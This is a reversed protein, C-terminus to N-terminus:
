GSPANVAARHARGALLGAAYWITMYEPNLNRLDLQRDVLGYLLTFALLAAPLPDGDRAARAAHGALVALMGLLLALGVVGTNLLASLVISHAFLVEFGVTTDFSMPAASGTGFWPADRVQELAQRWIELRLSFGRELIGDIGITSLVGVTGVVILAVAARRGERGQMLLGLGLTVAAAMMPGRSKSLVLALVLVVGAAALLTRGAAGTTAPWLRFALVILAAGYLIAVVVANESAGFGTLREYGGPATFAAVIAALAAVAGAAVFAREALRRAEPVTLLLLGTTAVFALINLYRGAFEVLQAPPRGSWSVSVLVFGLYAAVALLPPTRLVGALTRGDRVAALAVILGGYGLLRATAEPLFFLPVFLLAFAVAAALRRRPPLPEAPGAPQGALATNM